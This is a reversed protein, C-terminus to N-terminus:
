NMEPNLISIQILGACPSDRFGCPVAGGAIRRRDPIPMEIMSEKIQRM